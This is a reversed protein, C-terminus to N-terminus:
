VREFPFRAVPAWPGGLYRWLGLGTVAVRYPQFEASLRSHLRAATAPEVKNQVTVHLDAKVRDQATLWDAWQRALASRLQTLEPATITYAVGRGLKRVGAVRATIVPRTAAARVATTLQQERDGPLAHFLTLHADLHNRGAPFNDQRLRDFRQQAVDDLLATLILPQM